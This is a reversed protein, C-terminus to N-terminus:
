HKPMADRHAQLLIELVEKQKEAPFQNQVLVRITAETVKDPDVSSIIVIASVVNKAIETLQRASYRYAYLRIDARQIGGLSGTTITSCAILQHNVRPLQEFQSSKASRPAAMSTVLSFKLDM